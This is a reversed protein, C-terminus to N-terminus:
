PHVLEENIKKYEIIQIMLKFSIRAFILFMKVRQQAEDRLVPISDRSSM